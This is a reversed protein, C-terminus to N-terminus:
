INYLPSLHFLHLLGYDSFASNLLHCLLFLTTLLMSSHSINIHDNLLSQSTFEATCDACRWCVSKSTNVTTAAHQRKMHARLSSLYSFKKDCVTCVNPPANPRHIHMHARLGTMSSMWKNCVSCTLPADGRHARGHVELDALHFFGKGCEACVHPREGTHRREHKRLDSAYLFQRPCHACSLPLRGGHRTRRHIMLSRWTKFGDAGCDKCHLSTSTCTNYKAMTKTGNCTQFGNHSLQHHRLDVSQSFWQGCVNCVYKNVATAHSCRLHARLDRASKCRAGCHACVHEVVRHCLQVHSLLKTHTRFQKSCDKCKFWEVDATMDCGGKSRVVKSASFKTSKVPIRYDHCNLHQLLQTPSAFRRCCFCCVYPCTEIRRNTVVHLSTHQAAQGCNYKVSKQMNFNQFVHQVFKSSLCNGVFLLVTMHVDYVAIRTCTLLVASM